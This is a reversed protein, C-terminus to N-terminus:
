QLLINKKEKIILFFSFFIISILFLESILPGILLLFPFIAVGYGFFLNSINFQSNM